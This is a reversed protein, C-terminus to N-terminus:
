LSLYNNIKGEVFLFFRNNKRRLLRIAKEMMEALSPEGATDQPRWYDYVMHDYEFLGPLCVISPADRCKSCM